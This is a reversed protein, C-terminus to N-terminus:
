RVARADLRRARRRDDPHGADGQSTDAGRGREAFDDPLWLRSAPWPRAEIQHRPRESSPGSELFPSAGVALFAALLGVEDRARQFGLRPRVKWM